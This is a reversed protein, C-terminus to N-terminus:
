QPCLPDHDQRGGGAGWSGGRKLGMIRWDTECLGAVRERGPQSASVLFLCWATGGSVRFTLPHGAGGFMDQFITASFLILVTGIELVYLIM